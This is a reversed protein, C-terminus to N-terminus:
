FINSVSSAEHDLLMKIHRDAQGLLEHVVDTLAQEYTYNPGPCGILHSFHKDGIHLVVVLEGANDEFGVAWRYNQAEPLEKIYTLAESPKM